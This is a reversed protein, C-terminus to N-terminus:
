TKLERPYYVHNRKYKYTKKLVECRPKKFYLKTANRHKRSMEKYMNNLFLNISETGNQDKELRKSMKKFYEKAKEKIFNFLNKKEELKKERKPRNKDKQYNYDEYTEEIQQKIKDDKNKDKAGKELDHKFLIDNQEDEDRVAYEEPYKFLKNDKFENKIMKKIINDYKFKDKLELM